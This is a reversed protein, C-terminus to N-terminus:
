IEEELADCDRMSPNVLEPHSNELTWDRFDKAQRGGEYKQEYKGDSYFFEFTLFFLHFYKCMGISHLIHNSVMNEAYTKTKAMVATAISTPSFSM